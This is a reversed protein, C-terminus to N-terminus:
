GHQVEMPQIVLGHKKGYVLFQDENYWDSKSLNDFPRSPRLNDLANIIALDTIGHDLFATIPFVHDIHYNKPDVNVWNWHAQLHAVLEQPLYGLLNFTRDEKVRGLRQLCSHLLQRCRKAAIQNQKVQERNTNWNWHKNGSKAICNKRIGCLM